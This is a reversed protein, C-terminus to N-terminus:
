RTSDDVVEQLKDGQHKLSDGSPQPDSASKTTADPKKPNSKSKDQQTPKPKQSPM